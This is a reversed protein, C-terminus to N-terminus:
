IKMKKLADALTINKGKMYPEVTELADKYTNLKEQARQVNDERMQCGAVLQDYTMFSAKQYYFGNESPNSVVTPFGVFEMQGSEDAETRAIGKLYSLVSKVALATMEAQVTEPNDSIIRKALEPLIVQEGTDIANNFATVAINKLESM